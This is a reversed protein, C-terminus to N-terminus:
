HELKELKVTTNDVDSQFFIKRSTTKEILKLYQGPIDDRQIRGANIQDVVVEVCRRLLSLDPHLIFVFPPVFRPTHTYYQCRLREFTGHDRFIWKHFAYSRVNVFGRPPITCYLVPNNQDSLWYIDCHRYTCNLFGVQVPQREEGVSNSYAAPLQCIYRRCRSCLPHQISAVDFENDNTNYGIQLQGVRFLDALEVVADASNSWLLAINEKLSVDNICISFKYTNQKGYDALFRGRAKLLPDMRDSLTTDTWQQPCDYWGKQFVFSGLKRNRYFHVEEALYPLLPAIASTFATQVEHLVTQASRRKLSEARECYLRDKVTTCYFKSVSGNSFQVARTVAELASFSEYASKMSNQFEALVHLMYKDVVLLRDYEVSDNSCDFDNLVGLLFCLTSRLQGLTQKVTLLSQPGVPIHTRDAACQAVWLRLGDVGVAPLQKSGIEGQGSIVADPTIVNGVSKSMKHGQEDLVFGHLLVNKYPSRQEVAVSTLLLSQFWGRLQDMGEVILDASSKRQEDLAAAWSVGSDFWIDLIEDSKCLKRTTDDVAFDGAQNHWWIDSGHQQILRVTNELLSNSEIPENTEPDYFIPVPVGWVRQRSICWAPRRALVEKFSQAFNAPYFNVDNLQDLAAKKLQETDIFWQKSSRVIVPQKTRWDYPYSQTVNEKALIYKKFKELVAAQGETQVQLGGLDPGLERRYRGDEDVFCKVEEGHEVAVAFDEFGHAFSTHVLGTGKASTVHEASYFPLAHDPQMPCAYYLGSLFSGQFTSKVEIELKLLNRLRDIADMAFIYYESKIKALIYVLKKGFCIANNFALTWPMTTWVLAWIRDTPQLALIKKPFNVVSYKFYVAETCHNTVYELESEALATRSSPSWYVPSYARYVLGHQHLIKFIELEKGEYEKDLTLYPNKWDAMIAWKKFSDMQSQVAKLAFEKARKRVLTPDRRSNEDMSKIALLEVPLGHCDWGPRFHVRFGSMAKYRAFIDKLIKNVAHGLHVDGNAYPPGDHLVFTPKNQNWQWKYLDDVNCATSIQEDMKVREEHNMHVPFDSRPLLLTRAYIGKQRHTSFFWILNKRMAFNKFNMYM